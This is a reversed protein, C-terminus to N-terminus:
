FHSVFFSKNNSISTSHSSPNEKGISFNSRFVSIVRERVLWARRQVSQIENYHVLVSAIINYNIVWPRLDNASKYKSACRITTIVTVTIFCNVHVWIYVIRVIKRLKRRKSRGGM